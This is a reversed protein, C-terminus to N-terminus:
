SSKMRHILLFFASSHFFYACVKRSLSKEDNNPLLILYFIVYRHPDFNAYKKWEALKPKHSEMAHQVDDTNVKDSAFLEHLKEILEQLNLEHSM